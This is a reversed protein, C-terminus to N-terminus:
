GANDHLKEVVSIEVLFYHGVLFVVGEEVLGGDPLGEDVDDQAEFAQVVEINEM